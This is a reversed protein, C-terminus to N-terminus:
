GSCYLTRVEWPFSAPHSTLHRPTGRLLAMKPQLVDVEYKTSLISNELCRWNLLSAPIAEQHDAAFSATHGHHPVCLRRTKNGCSARVLVLSSDDARVLIGTWDNTHQYWLITATPLTSM